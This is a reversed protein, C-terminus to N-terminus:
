LFYRSDFASALAACLVSSFSIVVSRSALLVSCSRSRSMSTALSSKSRCARRVCEDRSSMSDFYLTAMSRATMISSSILSPSSSRSFSRMSVCRSRSSSDSRFISVSIRWSLTLFYSDRWRDVMEVSMETGSDGVNSFEGFEVALEGSIVVGGSIFGSLVGVGTAMLSGGDGGMDSVDTGSGFASTARVGAEVDDDTRRDRRGEASWETVGFGRWVNADDVDDFADIRGGPVPERM